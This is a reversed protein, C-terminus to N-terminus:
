EKRASLEMNGPLVPLRVTLLNEINAVIIKVCPGASDVVQFQIKLDRSRYVLNM